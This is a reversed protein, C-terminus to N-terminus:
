SSVSNDEPIHDKRFRAAILKEHLLHGAYMGGMILLFGLPGRQLATQWGEYYAFVGTLVSIGLVYVFMIKKRSEKPPVYLIKERLRINMAALTTLVFFVTKGPHQSEFLIYQYSLYFAVGYTGAFIANYALRIKLPVM